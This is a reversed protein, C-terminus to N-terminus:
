KEKEFILSFKLKQVHNEEMPTTADNVASVSIFAPPPAKSVSTCLVLIMARPNTTRTKAEPIASKAKASITPESM